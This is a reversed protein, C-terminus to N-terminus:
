GLESEEDAVEDPVGAPEVFDDAGAAEEDLEQAVDDEDSDAVIEEAETDEDDTLFGKGVKYNTDALSILKDIVNFNDDYDNLGDLNAFITDSLWLKRLAARGIAEPVGKKLFQTYDSDKDLTEIDPLDDVNVAEDAEASEVHDNTVVEDDEAVLAKTAVDAEQPIDISTPRETEEVAVPAARGRRASSKRRAWRSLLSDDGSASM